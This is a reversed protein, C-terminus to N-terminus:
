LNASLRLYKQQLLRFSDSLKWMYRDYYWKKKREQGEGKQRRHFPLYTKTIIEYKSFKHNQFFYQSPLIAIVDNRSEWPSLKFNLQNQLWYKRATISLVRVWPKRGEPKPSRFLDKSAVLNSNSHKKLSNWREEKEKKKGLEGDM